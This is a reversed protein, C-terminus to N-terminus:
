NGKGRRTSGLPRDPTPAQTAAHITAIQSGSLARNYVALGGLLGSFGQEVFRTKPYGQWQPIARQAVTFNAGNEGGDFIPKDTYPVGYFSFKM